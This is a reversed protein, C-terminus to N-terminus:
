DARPKLLKLKKRGAPVPAKGPKGAHTKPPTRLMRKLVDDRARTAEDDPLRNDPEKQKPM